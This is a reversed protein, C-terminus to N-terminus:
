GGKINLKIKFVKSKMLDLDEDYFINKKSISSMKVFGSSHIFVESTIYMGVHNPIDNEYFYILDSKKRNISKRQKLYNSKVQDKTDRPFHINELALLSQILGSCDFGFSSRGGWLYPTGLLIKSSDVSNDLSRNNTSKILKKKDINVKNGNPLLLKFSKDNICPLLTGFSLLYRIKNNIKIECFKDKVFYWNKLKRYVKYNEYISSDTVFFSHIWGLYKDRQKVKFWSDKVRLIFLEEWFLAQNILESSFSPKSYISAVNVSVIKYENTVKSM